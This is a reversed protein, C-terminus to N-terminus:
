ATLALSGAHCAIPRAERNSQDTTPNLRECGPLDRTTGVPKQRPHVHASEVDWETPCPWVTGDGSTLARSESDRAWNRCPRVTLCVDVSVRDGERSCCRQQWRRECGSVEAIAAVPKREPNPERTTPFGIGSARPAVAVKIGIESAWDSPHRPGCGGHREPEPKFLEYM